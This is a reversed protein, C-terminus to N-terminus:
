TLRAVVQEVLRALQAQLTEGWEHCRDISERLTQAEGELRGCERELELIRETQWRYQDQMVSPDTPVMLGSAVGASRRTRSPAVGARDLAYYITSRPLGTAETIEATKLGEQYLRVAWEHDSEGKQRRKPM